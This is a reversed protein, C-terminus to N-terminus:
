YTIKMCHRSCLMWKTPCSIAPCSIAYCSLYRMITTEILGLLKLLITDYSIQWTECIWTRYKWTRCNWIDPMKLWGTRADISLVRLHDASAVPQLEVSRFDLKDANVEDQDSLWFDISCITLRGQTEKIQNSKIICLLLSDCKCFFVIYTNKLLNFVM